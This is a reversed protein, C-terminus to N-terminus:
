SNASYTGLIRDWLPSSVGFNTEKGEHHIMHRAAQRAWYGHWRRPRGHHFRDHAIVYILYAVSVGVFLGTGISLGALGMLLAYGLSFYLIVQYGPVGIYSGPNVHHLWHERRYVRHFLWRHVSYEIFSMLLMGFVFGAAIEIVSANLYVARTLAIVALAPVTVMDAYYSHRSLQWASM